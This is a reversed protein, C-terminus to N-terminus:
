TTRSFINWSYSSGADIFFGYTSGNSVLFTSGGGAFIGVFNGNLSTVTFSTGTANQIYVPVGAYLSVDYIPLIVFNISVTKVSTFSNYATVPLSYTPGAGTYTIYRNNYLIQGAIYTTYSSDGIFISSNDANPALIGSGIIIQKEAKARSGAGIIVIDNRTSYTDLGTDTGIFTNSNGSQLNTGSGSGIAINNTSEQVSQLAQHGIAVNQYSGANANLGALTRVGISINNSILGTGSSVVGLADSGFICNQQCTSNLVKGANSGIVCNNDSITTAILPNATNTIILNNNVTSDTFSILNQINDIIIGKLTETGQAIPYSLFSSLLQSITLGSPPVYLSSDFIPVDEIPPPYTIGLGSM